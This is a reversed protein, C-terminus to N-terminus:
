DVVLYLTQSNPTLANYEATTLAVIDQVEDTSSRVFGLSTGQYSAYVDVIVIGNGGAGGDQNASTSFGGGGGGGYDIGPDGGGQFQDHRVAGGSMFASGSLNSRLATGSYVYSHGGAGGPIACVNGATTVAGGNGAPALASGSANTNMANGPNGGACVVLTGFSSTGGAAGNGSPGTGGAGGSGVTVSISSALSAIPAFHESYAGGGGPGGLAHFSGGLSGGGGGGGAQVRIRVATAGPYNAKVFSGSSTFVVQDLLGYNSVPNPFIDQTM